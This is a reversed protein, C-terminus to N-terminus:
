GENAKNVGTPNGSKATVGRNLAPAPKVKDQSYQQRGSCLGRLTGAAQFLFIIPNFILLLPTRASKITLAEWNAVNTLLLLTVGVTRPALPLLLLLPYLYKSLHHTWHGAYPARQLKLGWKRILAGFSEAIQFQKTFIETWRTPKSQYHLHIARNPSIHVEGHQMLRLCLDMDQGGAAFRDVDYGGIKEFADRRILDFKDSIGQKVDGVWRAMLVKGWFNYQEWVERPLTVTSAVAVRNPTMASFLTEISRENEPLCDQQVVLLHDGTAMQAGLNLDCALGLDRPNKVLRVGPPPSELPKPSSDVVIIEHPKLTQGGLKDLLRPLDGMKGYVPVIASIQPSRNSTM